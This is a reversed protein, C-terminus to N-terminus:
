IDSKNILELENNLKNSEKDINEKQVGIEEIHYILEKKYEELLDKIIKKRVEKNITVEYEYRSGIADGVAMRAAPFSSIDKGREDKLCIINQIIM